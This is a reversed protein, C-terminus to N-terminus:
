TRQIKIYIKSNGKWKNLIVDQSKIPIDIFRYSLKSFTSMKDMNFRGFWSYPIDEGWGKKKLEEKMGRLLTKNESYFDKINM